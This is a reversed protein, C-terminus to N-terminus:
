KRNDSSMCPRHAPDSVHHYCHPCVDEPCMPDNRKEPTSTEIPDTLGLEKRLRDGEAIRMPTSRWGHPYATGVASDLEERLLGVYEHLLGNQLLLTNREASLEAFEKNMKELTGSLKRNTAEVEMFCVHCSLAANEHERKNCIM